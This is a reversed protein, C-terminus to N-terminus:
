LHYLSFTSCAICALLLIASSAGDDDLNCISRKFRCIKDKNISQMKKKKHDEKSMNKKEKQKMAEKARCVM